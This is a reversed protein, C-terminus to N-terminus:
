NHVGCRAGLENFQKIVEDYRESFLSTNKQALSRWRAREQDDAVHFVAGQDIMKQILTDDEAKVEQWQRPSIDAIADVIATRHTAPLSDFWGKDVVISYTTLSFGPVYWGYKGTIGIMEAWGAPSTFVGDIAGQALATSMESAAMSVPSIQLSRMTELFVRGGTVRIKMGKLDEMRKVERDRLVFMLDATRLFGLIRLNRPEVYSSMLGSLGSMFCSNNMMSDSVAFPLNIVGTRPEITEIRVSVPWVMHVAGTGLAALADQDNYLQGATFIKVKVEGKSRKAVQEAFENMYRTKWHTTAVESTLVLETATANQVLLAGFILSVGTIFRTFVSM